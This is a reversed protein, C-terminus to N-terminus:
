RGTRAKEARAWYMEHRQVDEPRVWLGRLTVLGVNRCRGEQRHFTFAQDDIYTGHCATCHAASMSTTDHGGCAPCHIM